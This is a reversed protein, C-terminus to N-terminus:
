CYKGLARSYHMQLDQEREYERYRSTLSNMTPYGLKPLTAGPRRGLKIYRKVACIREKYSYM